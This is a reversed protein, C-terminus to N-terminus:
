PDLLFQSVNTFGKHLSFLPHGKVNKRMWEVVQTVTFLTFTRQHSSAHLDTIVVYKM